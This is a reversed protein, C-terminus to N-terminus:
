QNQIKLLQLPDPCNKIYYEMQELKCVGPYDGERDQLDKIVQFHLHPAYNVNEEPKGLRGLVDGSKYAKGKKLGELSTRTLHGYLTYFVTDGMHHELIITPGYDGIANNDCFSHVVGDVPTIVETGAPSWFDVGLHINRASGVTDQFLSSSKYLNRKELYGGYAVQGRTHNLFNNLYAEMATPDSMDLGDLEHNDVSLDIPIYANSSINTDLPAFITPSFDGKLIEM